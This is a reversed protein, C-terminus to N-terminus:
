TLSPRDSTGIRASLTEEGAQILFVLSGRRLNEVNVPDIVAGGGASVVSDGGPLSAIADREMRRFGAEGEERFVRPIKRGAREEVLRDVDIFPLGLRAALIGGVTTKGTGRFGTLVVRM